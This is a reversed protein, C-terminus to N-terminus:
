MTEGHERDEAQAGNSPGILDRWKAFPDPKLAKTLGHALQEESAVYEVSVDGERVAQQLYQYRVHM